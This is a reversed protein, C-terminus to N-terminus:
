SKQGEKQAAKNVREYEEQRLDIETILNDLDTILQEVVRHDSLEVLDSPNARPNQEAILKLARERQAPDLTTKVTNRM